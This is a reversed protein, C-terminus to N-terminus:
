SLARLCVCGIYRVNDTAEKDAGADIFLRVCGSAGKEAAWMLATWGDQSQFTRSFATAPGDAIIHALLLSHMFM